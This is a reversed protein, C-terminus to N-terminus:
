TRTLYSTSNLYSCPLVLLGTASDNDAIVVPRAWTWKCGHAYETTFKLEVM